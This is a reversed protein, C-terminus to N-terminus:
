KVESFFDIFEQSDFEGMGDHQLVLHGDSNIVFTTPILTTHYIAPMPGALSYIEFDYNNKKKFEMAKEFEQDMSLMLFVVDDREQVETYLNQITPMEEICPACWTAWVNFFVVKDRFEEMHVKEGKSNKLEMEYSAKPFDKESDNQCGVGFTSVTIFLFSYLFRSFSFNLSVKNKM